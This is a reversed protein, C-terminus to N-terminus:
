YPYIDKPKPLAFFFFLLVTCEYLISLIVRYLVLSLEITAELVLSRQGHFEGPLIVPISLWERRRTIKRVWPDSGPTLGLDGANCTSEKGDSGGPFGLYAFLGRNKSM